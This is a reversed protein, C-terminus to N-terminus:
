YLENYDLFGNDDLDYSKFALRLKDELSGTKMISIVCIFDRFDVLGNKSHDLLKFLDSLIDKDQIFGRKFAKLIIIYNRLLKSFNLGISQGTM